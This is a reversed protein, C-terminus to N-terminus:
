DLCLMGGPQSNLIPTELEIFGQKDLLERMRAIIFARSRMTKRVEPNVILDLHRQRYRKNIDVLGHWKDPLPLLAKTLMNWSSVYVSLEGKDTRKITGQVGIIDGSDTWEKLSDFQDNLRSKDIYLQITGTDDQLQFFALKGFVRRNMIRGAVSVTVDSVEMGNELGLYKEQLMDTKHSVIFNYAFPNIGAAKMSDIKNLRVRRIDELTSSDDAEAKESKKNGKSQNKTNSSSSCFLQVSQRLSRNACRSQIQQSIHSASNGIRSFSSLMTKGSHFLVLVIM